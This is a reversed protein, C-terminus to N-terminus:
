PQVEPATRAVWTTLRVPAEDAGSPGRWRIEVRVRKTEPGSPSPRVDINLRGDPLERRIRETVDDAALRDGSLEDWPRAVVRELVNDAERLAWQRRSAGRREAAVWTLLQLTLAMVVAMVLMAGALEVLTFGRENVRESYTTRLM